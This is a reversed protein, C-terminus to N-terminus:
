GRGPLERKRPQTQGACRGVPAGPQPAVPRMGGVVPVPLAPLAVAGAPAAGACRSLWRAPTVTARVCQGAGGDLVGFGIFVFPAYPGIRDFLVGGVATSVLIGAAGCINFMGIVSARNAPQAEKAILTQAGAFASIQGMGLLVLFPVAALSLVDDILMTSMYGICAITMCIVVGTVRNVRDLVVGIVPLWLLAALSATGFVRGGQAIAQTAAMGKAVAATTGWLSAYTGLLVLDGNVVTVNGDVTGAIRLVGRYTALAGGVRGGAPVALDGSARTTASDNFRRLVEELVGVPLGTALVSDGAPAAPDLVILSDQAAAAVPVGALLLWLLVLRRAHTTM